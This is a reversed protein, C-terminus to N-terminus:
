VHVEAPRVGIYILVGILPLVFVLILWGAKAWGSIDHRGFVDVVVAIFLVLFMVFVFAVAVTWLFHLFSMDVM